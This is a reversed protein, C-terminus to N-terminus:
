CFTSSCGQSDALHGGITTSWAAKGCLFGVASSRRDSPRQESSFSSILVYSSPTYSVECLHGNTATPSRCIPVTYSSDCSKLPIPM